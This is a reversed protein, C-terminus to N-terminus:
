ENIIGPAFFIQCWTTKYRENYDPVDNGRGTNSHKVIDKSTIIRDDFRLIVEGLEDNGHSTTVTYTSTKTEKGSTGFKLGLKLARSTSESFIIILINTEEFFTM